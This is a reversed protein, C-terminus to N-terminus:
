SFDDSQHRENHPPILLPIAISRYPLCPSRLCVPVIFNKKILTVIRQIVCCHVVMMLEVVRLYGNGVIQIPIRVLSICNPGVVIFLKM